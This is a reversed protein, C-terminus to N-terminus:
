NTQSTDECLVPAPEASADCHLAGFRSVPEVGTSSSRRPPEERRGMSLWLVAAGAPIPDTGLEQTAPRRHTRGM